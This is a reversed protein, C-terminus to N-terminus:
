GGRHEMEILYRKMDLGGGYGRLSGDAGVVRHCPILPAFPNRAMAAGVARARSPSGCLEAVASYTLTSGAPIASVTRYIDRLLATGGAREVLGPMVPLGGEGRWYLELDIVLAAIPEPVRVAPAALEAGPLGLRVIDGADHEIWGNGFPTSYTAVSV